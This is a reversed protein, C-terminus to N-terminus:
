QKKASTINTKYKKLKYREMFFGIYLSNTM